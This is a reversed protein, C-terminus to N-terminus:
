FKGRGACEEATGGSEEARKPNGRWPTAGGLREAYGHLGCGDDAIGLPSATSVTPLINLIAFRAQQQNSAVTRM